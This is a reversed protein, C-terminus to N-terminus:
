ALLFPAVPTSSSRSNEASPTGIRICSSVTSRVVLPDPGNPWILCESRVLSSAAALCRSQHPCLHYVLQLVWMVLRLTTNQPFWIFYCLLSRMLGSYRSTGRDWTPTHKTGSSARDHLHFSFHLRSPFFICRFLLIFHCIDFGQLNAAFLICWAQKTHLRYPYLPLYKHWYKPPLESPWLIM